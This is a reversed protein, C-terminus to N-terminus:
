ASHGRSDSGRVAHWVPTSIRRPGGPRKCGICVFHSITHVQRGSAMSMLLMVCSHSPHSQTPCCKPAHPGKNTSDLNHLSGGRSLHIGDLKKFRFRASFEGVSQVSVTYYPYDACIVRVPMVTDKYLIMYMGQLNQFHVLAATFSSQGLQGLPSKTGHHKTFRPIPPCFCSDKNDSCPLSCQAEFSYQGKSIIASTALYNAPGEEGPKTAIYQAPALLSLLSATLSDLCDHCAEKRGDLCCGHWCVKDLELSNSVDLGRFDM